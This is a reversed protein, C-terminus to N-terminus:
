KAYNHKINWGKERSIDLRRKSENISNTTMAGTVTLNQLRNYENVSRQLNNLMENEVGELKKLRDNVQTLQDSYENLQHEHGERQSLKKLETHFHRAQKLAKEEQRINEAM